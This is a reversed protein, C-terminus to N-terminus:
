INMKHDASGTRKMDETQYGILGTIKPFLGESTLIM